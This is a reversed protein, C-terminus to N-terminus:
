LKGTVIWHINEIKSMSLLATDNNLLNATAGNEKMYRLLDFSFFLRLSNDAARSFYLRSMFPQPDHEKVASPFINIKEIRYDKIKQNMVVATNLKPHPIDSHAQEAMLGSGPHMHTPGTWIDGVRGYAPIDEALTYVNAKRVLAGSKMVDETIYRSMRITDRRSQLAAPSKTEYEKAVPSTFALLSVDSLLEPSNIEFPVSITKSYVLSSEDRNFSYQGVGNMLDVVKTNKVKPNQQFIYNKRIADMSALQLERSDTIMAVTLNIPNFYNRNTTQVM